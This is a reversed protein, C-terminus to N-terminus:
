KVMEGQCVSVIQRIVFDACPQAMGNGIAKYRATVSCSKDDILTWNDPLGQLRECELPTLRRVLTKRCSVIPPQKYDTASLQDMQNDVFRASREDHGMCIVKAGSTNSGGVSATLTNAVDGTVAGNYVDCCVAYGREFPNDNYCKAYGSVLTGAKEPTLIAIGGQNRSPDPQGTDLTKAIDVKRCGSNPNKSKMSNSALSDFSYATPCVMPVYGGGMGMSAPLTNCKGNNSVTAHNQNSELVIPEHGHTQARLTGIKDKEVQMVGGGQDNLVIPMNNGGTGMSATLTATKSDSAVRVEKRHIQMIITESANGTSGDTGQTINQKEKECSQNNGSMCSEVFLIEGACRRGKTFDAVLFIRKRRQPVGWYQSDLVRWAIECRDCQVLGADAWKGGEPMPIETEGIEELVTKFDLGRNSSFAGTVNEWVFYKPFEGGTRDRMQRVIDIARLFLGSRESQLGGRKGAVSLDQCPSGACLIECPEIEGGDINNIDGLQKTNPFRLKTVALPFKEIESSWVPTVNNHVAALQWGGIGDFLSGLRIM